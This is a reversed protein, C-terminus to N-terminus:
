ALDRLMQTAAAFRQALREARARRQPRPTVRVGEAGATDPRGLARAAIRFAGRATASVPDPPVDVPVGLIDAIITPWVQSTAGGGALSIRRSAAGGMARLNSAIALAVGELAAYYLAGAGDSAGLNVFGARLDLDVFPSREGNLYPLFMAEGPAADTALALAEAHQLDIGLATRAWQTAAGGSLIPAIEIVADLLPHPLRYFPRVSGADDLPAVRAVWGSTGLYISVDNEGEAGSGLTTAGGDGCGNIVPLGQPLGLETAAAATLGGVIDTAPLILPLRVREIGHLGILEDSWDRTALRMLGTTAACTPDTVARGTLKLALYDKAGPLFVAAADFAPRDHARLWGLKFATMLPEPANGSIAAADTAALEPQLAELYPAGCPDSYLVAEAMPAGDAAVPILNEMTGALAIAEIGDGGLQRTAAIAAQWWGEPPLRHPTGPRPYGAEAHAMIAGAPDFLTAKLASSGADLVLITGSM